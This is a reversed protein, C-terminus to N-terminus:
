VCRSTYLLCVYHRGDAPIGQYVYNLGSENTVPTVDEGTVHAVYGVGQGDHFEGYGLQAVLAQTADSLIPPVPAGAEDAPPQEDLLSQLEELAEQGATDGRAQLWALLTAIPVIRIQPQNLDISNRDRICM